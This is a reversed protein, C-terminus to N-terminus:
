QAFTLTLVMSLSWVRLCFAEKDEERCHKLNYM